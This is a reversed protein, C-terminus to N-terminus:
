KIIPFEPTHTVHLEGDIDEILYVELGLDPNKILFNHIEVTGMVMFATAYADAEYGTSAIVTCSLLSHTVPRGIRGDITHSHRVGNIMKFKNYSGSTAVACNNLSILSKYEGDEKRPDQIGLTWPSNLSNVGHVVIEGGVNVMFNEVGNELFMDGILDCTYGQVIANFDLNRDKHTKRIMTPQSSQDEYANEYLTFDFDSFGIIEVVSDLEAQSPEVSIDKGFNWLRLLPLVSPDFAFETKQYIDRSADMMISFNLTSDQFKFLESPKDWANLRSIVSTSDWLNFGDDIQKLILQIQPSFDASDKYQIDFYTGQTEGRYSLYGTKEVEKGVEQKSNSETCSFFLTAITLFALLNKM